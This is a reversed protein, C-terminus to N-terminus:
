EHGTGMYGDLFACAPTLYMPTKHVTSYLEIFVRLVHSNVGILNPYIECASFYMSIDGIITAGKGHEHTGFIICSDCLIKLHELKM